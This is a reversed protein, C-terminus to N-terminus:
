KKQVQSETLPDNLIIQPIKQFHLESKPNREKKLDKLESHIGM